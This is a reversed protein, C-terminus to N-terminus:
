DFPTFGKGAKSRGERPPPGDFRSKGLLEDAATVLEDLQEKESDVATVPRSRRRASEPPTVFGIPVHCKAKVYGGPRM